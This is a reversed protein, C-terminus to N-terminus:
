RKRPPISLAPDLKAAREACLSPTCTSAGIRNVRRRAEDYNLTPCLKLLERMAVATPSSAPPKGPLAFYDDLTKM